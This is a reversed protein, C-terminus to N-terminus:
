KDIRGSILQRGIGYNLQMEAPTNIDSRYQNSRGFQLLWVCSDMLSEGCRLLYRNAVHSIQFAILDFDQFSVLRPVAYTVCDLSEMYLNYHCVNYEIIIPHEDHPEPPEPLRGLGVCCVPLGLGPVTRM